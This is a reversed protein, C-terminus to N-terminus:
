DARIARNLNLDYENRVGPACLERSFRVFRRDNYTVRARRTTFTERRDSTTALSSVRNYKLIGPFGAFHKIVVPTNKWKTRSSKM